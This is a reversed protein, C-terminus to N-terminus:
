QRNICQNYIEDFQKGIVSFSFKGHADEVIKKRNYLSYNRIMQRMAKALAEENGPEVLIGNEDNVLEPIGGVNTAIVPLGTCLAEGIVCPSNEINSFLVLADSGKMQNAVEKYSVEGMFFAVINLIGLREAYNKIAVDTNGVMIIEFDAFTNHIARAVRLIGETNKLSVMNSVHIFRFLENIKKEKYFFLNTDVVNPIVKFSNPFVIQNVKEGLYHSVSLFGSASKLVLRTLTKLWGPQSAYNDKVVDNYIGWHESVIYPIHYQKKIWLAVLGAKVPIQVHVLDPKGYTLFYKKVAKRFQSIWKFQTIIKGAFSGSKPFYIIEETLGQFHISGKENITNMKMKNFGAVHIVHIDNYIAAARAHRQIFDGNFPDQKTPYWSALWLIRKRSM